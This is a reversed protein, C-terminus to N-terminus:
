DERRFVEACVSRFDRRSLMPANSEMLEVANNALEDAIEEWEIGRRKAEFVVQQRLTLGIM